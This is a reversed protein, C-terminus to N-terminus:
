AGDAGVRGGATRRRGAVGRWGPGAAAPGAVRHAADKAHCYRKVRCHVWSTPGASHSESTDAPPVAVASSGGAHPALGGGASWERAPPTAEEEGGARLATWIVFAFVAVLGVVAVTAHSDHVVSDATNVAAAASEDARGGIRRVVLLTLLVLLVL